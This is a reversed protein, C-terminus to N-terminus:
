RKVSGPCVYDAESDDCAYGKSRLCKDFAEYMVNSRLMIEVPSVEGYMWRTCIMRDAHTLEQGDSRRYSPEACGALTFVIAAAALIGGVGALRSLNAEWRKLRANREALADQLLRRDRRLKFIQDQAAVLERKLWEGDVPGIDTLRTLEEAQRRVDDKWDSMEAGVSM